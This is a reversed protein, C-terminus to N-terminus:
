GEQRKKLTAKMAAPTVGTAYGEGDLDFVIMNTGLNDYHTGDVTLWDYNTAVSGTFPGIVGAIDDGASASATLYSNTQPYITAQFAVQRPTSSTGQARLMSPLLRPQIGAFLASALVDTGNSIWNTIRLGTDTASLAITMSSNLNPTATAATTYTGAFNHRAARAAEAELAPIVAASLMDLVTNTVAGRLTSNTNASLITFGAGYRTSVKTLSVAYFFIIVSRSSVPPAQTSRFASLLLM